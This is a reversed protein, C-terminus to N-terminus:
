SQPEEGSLLDVGLLAAERLARQRAAKDAVAVASALTGALHKEAVCAELGLPEASSIEFQRVTRLFDGRITDQEYWEPPLAASWEVELSLSWAAPPGSGYEARLWGLLDAALNGRRLQSLLPGSGVITWSILLVMKPAAEVLTHMRERLLTELDARSTAEDVVVRESLWRMADTPILSTRAQRQQDVQVLTCGHIGSEGPHRGQPSGPYHAIQPTSLPTSRDHRGGLAWYHIGSAQLAAPDAAAHAVAITFLGTPDPPFDGPRIARQGDRSIGVLRVLPTEERRHVIEEIRARPFVHVNDPLTVASPWADPPDVSGGAWYVAIGREALRAFHEVLFLPGRPGTYQPHLLDGCLVLLEADEALATEFVQEAATYAADLFLDRLHDPVEAIGTPPQELHFDSAHVFRFPCDSM